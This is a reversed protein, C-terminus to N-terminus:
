HQIIIRKIQGATKTGGDASLESIKCIYIGQSLGQTNLLTSNNIIKQSTVLQGLITYLELTYSSNNDNRIKVTVTNNAPNPFLNFNWQSVNDTSTTAIPSSLGKYYSVGGQYNGVIMDMYGDNDIDAGNPATRTGQFINEYTSDVLSFIGSLNGDINDYLRLYGSEQGVLLKTIGNQKFVFPYSYGTVYGPLNVKVNGFFHTISDMVPVTATASGIRHYYAIKGNRGGIVLDNKGDNDMDVIQPVAFDGIDVVRANSNRFNPQTLVFNATAGLLAINEFYHLKGNYGGIIMDADTDGDLDGFAPVMNTIGLSSMSAYDRTILDFKPLTATGINKFQAIKHTFGTTGFYGYDGIFLDKLGDNDYDFFVPYAGEGVEIMNDQLLNSQQFQFNPFSNTGTNKYYVVSNFNESANPANPSVILDKIGDNNADVYYGCPFISLDVATTSGNNSPFTGDVATMYGATPTGGNTLMTLNNFSIDGTVLEKDNDGNLDLCLLCSGSHREASRSDDDYAIIGPNSVNGFCTDNLTFANSFNNEAAYGWCRNKMEFKLSDCTGYLEMSKNQHYEMYSGTIAFTVVDLDGDNDIDTIAPIDVSSVYLNILSGSPPNFISFQLPTVLTFQLGSSTSSTNKYVKFGGGIDSYSFIDEKGDCNYDALLAWNHLKPFKSEYQPDYKFDVTNATGNNIFTRVKNGTRDFIFLDKTGDLNLDINSAQIFNLGGAWPNAITSGDIKVQITDNWQFFPQAQATGTILLFCFLVSSFRISKM